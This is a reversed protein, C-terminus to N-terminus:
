PRLSDFFVLRVDRKSAALPDFDEALFLHFTRIAFRLEPQLNSGGGTFEAPNM